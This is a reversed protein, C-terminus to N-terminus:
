KKMADLEAKNIKSDKELRFSKIIRYFHALFFILFTHVFLARHGIGYVPLSLQFSIM